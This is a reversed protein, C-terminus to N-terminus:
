NRYADCEAQNVRLRNTAISPFMIVNQDDTRHNLGKNHGYEHAWLIGEQNATFRVVALANGPVPACGIINPALGGCWNIANVVKVNGPPNIVVTTFEAQSDISGDGTAFTTVDGQRVLGVACAVDGPGDNVQLANTADVLIAYARANTLPTNTFRTVTLNQTVPPPTPPGTPGNCSNLILFAVLALGFVNM